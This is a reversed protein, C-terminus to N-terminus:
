LKIWRGRLIMYFIWFHYLSVSWILYIPLKWKVFILYEKTKIKSLSHLFCCICPQQLILLFSKRAVTKCKHKIPRQFDNNCPTFIFIEFIILCIWHLFAWTNFMISHSCGWSYQVSSSEPTPLRLVVMLWFGSGPSFYESSGMSRIM